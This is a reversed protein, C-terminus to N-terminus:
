RFKYAVGIKLYRGFVFNQESIFYTPYITQRVFNSDNLLNDVKLFWTAKESSHHLQLSIKTFSSEVAGLFKITRFSPTLMLKKDFLDIEASLDVSLMEQVTRNKTLNNTFIFASYKPYLFLNFPGNQFDSNIKLGLLRRTTKTQYTNASEDINENQNILWEPELVLTLPLKKFTQTFPFTLLWYESTLQDYSISIVPENSFLFRNGNKIKGHLVWPEFLLGISQFNKAGSVDLTMEPQLDIPSRNPIFITQFDQLVQGTMLKELPFASVQRSLSASLHDYGNSIYSISSKFELFNETKRNLQESPYAISQFRLENNFDIKSISTQYKFFPGWKWSSLIQRPQSFDPILNATDEQNDLARKQTIQKKWHYHLGAHFTGIKSRHVTTVDTLLNNASTNELQNFDTVIEDNQNYFVAAYIPNNHVLQRDFESSIYAHSAKLQVGTKQSLKYEFRLNKYFSSSHHSNGFRYDLNQDIEKNKADYDNKSFVGNVDIKVKINKKDYRFDIKNKSTYNEIEATEILQNTIELDAFEQLYNRGQVDKSYSNYTGFYVDINPSITIKNSLGVIDRWAVTYDKFGFIEDNFAERETLTQFDAPVEFLKQFAEAGINKIQDLSITQEGFRDHEAFLHFKANKKLYFTNIYGGPETTEQYGLTGRIKGFLSKNLEDKLKIDLVVYETADLLSEKLKANKEDLRVEINEVDKPAISRTILAAGADSIEEGDILVKQVAKGNVEIEGDGRIKFGPIKVLVDELLQDRADTFHAIDYIITDEKVIIPGQIIVEQLQEVKPTLVISFQITTDKESVMVLDQRFPHYGLRSTKLTFVAFNSPLVLKYNGDLDSQTYEIIKESQYQYLIVSVFPLSTSDNSDIVSGQITTQGASLFATLLLIGYLSIKQGLSISM